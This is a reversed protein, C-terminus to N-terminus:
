RPAPALEAPDGHSLAIESLPSGVSTVSYIDGDGGQGVLVAIQDDVQYTHAPSQQGDLVIEGSTWPGDVRGADAPETEPRPALRRANALTEAKMQELTTSGPRCTTVHVRRAPNEFYRATRRFVLAPQGGSAASASVTCPWPVHAVVLPCGHDLWVEQLPLRRKGFRLPRM